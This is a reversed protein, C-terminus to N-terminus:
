HSFPSLDRVIFTNSSGIDKKCVSSSFVVSFVGKQPFFDFTQGLTFIKLVMICSEDNVIHKWVDSCANTFHM